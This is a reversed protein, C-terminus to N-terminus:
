PLVGWTKIKAQLAKVWRINDEATNFYDIGPKLVHAPDQPPV